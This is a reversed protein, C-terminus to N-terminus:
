ATLRALAMKAVRAFNESPILYSEDSLINVVEDLTVLRGLWAYGLVAEVSNAIEGRSIRRPLLKRLGAKIAAEALVKDQVKFGRPKGTTRTVAISYAFNLFSDGFQALGKDTLIRTLEEDSLPVM